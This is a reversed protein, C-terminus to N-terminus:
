RNYDSMASMEFYKKQYTTNCIRSFKKNGWKFIHRVGQISKPASCSKFGTNFEIELPYNHIQQSQIIKPLCHFMNRASHALMARYLYYSLVRKDYTYKYSM